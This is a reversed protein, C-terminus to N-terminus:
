RIRLEKLESKKRKPKQAQKTYWEEPASDMTPPEYAIPDVVKKFKKMPKDPDEIRGKNMLDLRKTQWQDATLLTDTDKFLAIYMNGRKKRDPDGCVMLEGSSTNGIFFGSLYNSIYDKGMAKFYVKTGMAFQKKKTKLMGVLIRRQKLSLNNFFTIYHLLEDSSAVIQAVDPTYCKPALAFPRIGQKQCLGQMSPHQHTKFHLCEGCKPADKLSKVKTSEDIVDKKKM